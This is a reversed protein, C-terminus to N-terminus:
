RKCIDDSEQFTIDNGVGDFIKESNEVDMDDVVSDANAKQEGNCIKDSCENMIYTAVKLAASLPPLDSLSFDDGSVSLDLNEPLEILQSTSINLISPTENPTKDQPKPKETLWPTPINLISSIQDQPKPKKSSNSLRCQKSENATRELSMELLRKERSYPYM